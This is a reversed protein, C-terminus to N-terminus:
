YGWMRDWLKGFAESISLQSFDPRIATMKFGTGTKKVEYYFIFAEKPSTKEFDSRGYKVLYVNLTASDPKELFYMGQSYWKLTELERGEFGKELQLNRNYTVFNIQNQKQFLAYEGVTLNSDNYAIGAWLVNNLITPSTNLTEYAINQRNLENSFSRHMYFKVGFTLLMYTSSVYLARKAFILRKPNDRKLFLIYVVFPIFCITYMPDVVSINNFGLLHHSFPLFVRTGYTTCSDLLAHMALGILWFFYWSKFDVKRKFLRYFIWAIPFAFVFHTFWAHTYSRHMILELLDDKLIAIPIIDIDPANSALAGCLMAKNGIKKGLLIEGVAAGLVTHTLPDM